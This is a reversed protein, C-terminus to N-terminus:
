GHPGNSQEMPSQEPDSGEEEPEEELVIPLPGGHEAGIDTGAEETGRRGPNKAGKQIHPSVM